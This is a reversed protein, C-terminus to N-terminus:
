DETSSDIVHVSEEDEPTPAIMELAGLPVLIKAGYRRVPAGLDVSVMPLGRRNKSRDVHEVVGHMGSLYKPKLNQNLRM